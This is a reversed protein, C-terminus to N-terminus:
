WTFSLSASLHRGASTSRAQTSAAGASALPVDGADSYSRDALNFVGVDLRAQPAIRWHALLDVVGYGPVQAVTAPDSVRTKRAAFRGALEAGANERSWALGLTASPPDVSDLPKGATQDDGRTWAAAARLTWGPSLETGAKLEVGHIRARSVNRSQYVVLGDANRGVPQLSAIFDRYRTDHVAVSAHSRGAAFRLGLELGNSAEPKLDPNAIATYGFMLNTFGVNVDAYPPARFGCSYGGFVAWHPAARWVAGLKPSVSTSRLASVAVGPNGDTFIADPKPDLRYHDVRVGPVIRWAGGGLTIEDQLYAAATFTRTLPFDRVPYTDPPMVNTSSGTLLDIRRGDRLASTTTRALDIGYALAHPGIAKHANLQLGDVRQDFHFERERRDRGAALTREEVTAQDVESRQRYAQWDLRDAIPWALADFEQALSIRLRQQRDDGHVRDNTARTMPQFGESTLVRTDARANGGDVTLRLRQSADPAHVLKVLLSAAERRQPNPQTRASGVGGTRGQNEPEHGARAGLAVLGSWRENGFAATGGAFRGNWSGDYGLRGTFARDRGDALLDAPDKTVYAVVGGLADSGHLASAPGRVIEVRKLTDLDVFDRSASAYSGFSFADSVAIGDTQIRVRNGDLGRIRFGGLGSFRGAGRTVSIGPEYRVLEQIDTALLSDIEDRTFVDVTHPVDFVARAARSATVQVRQLEGATEDVVKAEVATSALPGLALLTALSTALTNRSPPPRHRDPAIPRSM